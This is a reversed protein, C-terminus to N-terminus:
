SVSGKFARWGKTESIDDKEGVAFRSDLREQRNIQDPAIKKKKKKQAQTFGAM